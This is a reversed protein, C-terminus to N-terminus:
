YGLGAKANSYRNYKVLAVCNFLGRRNDFVKIPQSSILVASYIKFLLAQVYFLDNCSFGFFLLLM